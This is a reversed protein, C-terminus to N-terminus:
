AKVALEIKMFASVFERLGQDAAFVRLPLPRPIRLGTPRLPVAGSYISAALGLIRVGLCHLPSYHPQPSFDVIFKQTGRSM